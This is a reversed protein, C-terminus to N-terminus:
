GSASPSRRRCRSTAARSRAATRTGTTSVAPIVFALVWVAVTVIALVTYASLFSKTPATEPEAETPPSDTSM